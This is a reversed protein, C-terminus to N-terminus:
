VVVGIHLTLDPSFNNMDRTQLPAFRHNFIFCLSASLTAQPWPHPPPTNYIQFLTSLVTKRPLRQGALFTLSIYQLHLLMAHGWHKGFPLPLQASTPQININTEESGNAAIDMKNPTESWTFNHLGSYLNGPYENLLLCSVTQKMYPYSLKPKHLKQSWGRLYDLATTQAFDKIKLMCTCTNKFCKEDDRTNEM